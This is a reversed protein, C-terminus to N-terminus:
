SEFFKNEQRCFSAAAGPATGSQVSGLKENVDVVCGELIKKRWGGGGRRALNVEESFRSFYM